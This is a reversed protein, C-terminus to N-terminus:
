RGRLPDLHWGALPDVRRAPRLREWAIFGLVRGLFGLTEWDAPGPGM